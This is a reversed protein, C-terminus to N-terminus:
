CLITQVVLYIPPDGRGSLPLGDCRAHSVTISPATLPVALGAPLGGGLRDISATRLYPVRAPHAQSAIECPQSSTTECCSSRKEHAMGAGMPAAAMDMGVALPQCCCSATGGCPMVFAAAAQGTLALVLLPIMLWPIRKRIKAM